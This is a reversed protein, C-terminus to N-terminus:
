LLRVQYPKQLQIELQDRCDVVNLLRYSQLVVAIFKRQGLEKIHKAISKTYRGLENLAHSLRMIYHFGKMASWNYSFMHEYHYGQHKEVLNSIEINWRYRASLNCRQHVNCRSLKQNSVWAHKSKKTISENAERDFVEWTEECVVVNLLLTKKLNKGDKTEVTYDYEIENVWKFQQKRGNHKMGYSNEPKMDSLSNFEEWVTTLSKDKLVIMYDWNLQKCLEIIPGSAYLGDLLVRIKLHSFENKLRHAVRKFAKTECDQKIDESSKAKNTEDKPDYKLFESMLPIRFGNHFVLNVELVYVYYQKYEKDTNANITRELLNEDWLEGSVTKQTGDFAIDFYKDTLFNAFKKNHMWRKILSILVSEIQDVDDGLQALVRNLTDQHPISELEPFFWQLMSSVTPTSLEKNMERRSGIHHVFSIIAYLIVVPLKHKIKKPQRPEEIRKLAKLIVPLQNRIFRIQEVTADMKAAIEEEATKYPSKTNPTTARSPSSLEEQKKRDRLESRTKQIQRKKAIIEEQSLRVERQKVRSM